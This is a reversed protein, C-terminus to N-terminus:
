PGYTGGNGCAGKDHLIRTLSYLALMSLMFYAWLGTSLLGTLIFSIGFGTTLMAYVIVGMFACGARM